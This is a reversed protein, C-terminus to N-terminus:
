FVNENRFVLFGNFFFFIRNGKGNRSARMKKGEFGVLSSRRSGGLRKGM